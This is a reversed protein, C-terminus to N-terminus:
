QAAGAAAKSTSVPSRTAIWASIESERWGSARAGLRVAPPFDDARILGYIATKKLGVAAIVEPLRMFRDIPSAHKTTQHMNQPTLFKELIRARLPM